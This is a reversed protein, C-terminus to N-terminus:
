LRGDEWFALWRLIRFWGARKARGGIRIFLRDISWNERQLLYKSFFRISISSVWLHDCPCFTKTIGATQKFLIYVMWYPGNMRASSQRREGRSHPGFTRSAKCFRSCPSLLGNSKWFRSSTASAMWDGLIEAVRSVFAIHIRVVLKRGRNACTPITISLMRRPGNHAHSLAFSLFSSKRHSFVIFFRIFTSDFCFSLRSFSFITASIRMGMRTLFHRIPFSSKRQSFVIFCRIFTSDFCFLPRSFGFHANGHTDSLAFSLFSSKRHAFVILFHIFTSDLCFLLRSFGFTTASIRTGM